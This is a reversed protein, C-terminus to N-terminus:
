AKIEGTIRIGAHEMGDRNIFILVSTLAEAAASNDIPGAHWAKLGAAAAFEIVSERAARNNGCVLVDCDIPAAVNQLTDAAVNQFASVVRVGDGLFEQATKAASGGPPLQVRAVKPPVLPVTADVLIKGQVGDRITELMPRHNAFPVTMVVIDAAAAATANDRGQIDAGDARDALSWAAASAKEASRSGIVIPYGAGAWRLALGSGLAGTGGIVAITPKREAM